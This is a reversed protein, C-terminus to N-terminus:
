TTKNKNNNNVKNTFTSVGLVKNLSSSKGGFIKNIFEEMEPKRKEREMHIKMYRELSEDPYGAYKMNIIYENLPPCQGKSWYKDHLYVFPQVFKVRVKGSNSVSLDVTIIDYDGNYVFKPPKPTTPKMIPTTKQLYLIREQNLRNYERLADPNPSSIAMKEDAIKKMHFYSEFNAIPRWIEKKKETNRGKNKMDEILKEVLAM